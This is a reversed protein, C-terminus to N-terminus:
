VLLSIEVTRELPVGKWSAWVDYTVLRWHMCLLALIAAWLIIDSAGMIQKLEQPGDECDEACKEFAPLLYARQRFEPNHM